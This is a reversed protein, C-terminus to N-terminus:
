KCRNSSLDVIDIGDGGGGLDPRPGGGENSPKDERILKSLGVLPKSDILFAGMLGTCLLPVM